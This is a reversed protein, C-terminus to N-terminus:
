AALSLDCMRRILMGNFLMFLRTVKIAIICAPKCTLVCLVCMCLGVFGFRKPNASTVRSLLRIRRVICWFDICLLTNKVHTPTCVALAFRCRSVNPCPAHNLDAARCFCSAALLVHVFFHQTLVIRTNVVCKLLEILLMLENSHWIDRRM